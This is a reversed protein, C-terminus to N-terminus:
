IIAFFRMRVRAFLETQRFAELPSATDYLHMLYGWDRHPAHARRAPYRWRLKTVRKWLFKGM